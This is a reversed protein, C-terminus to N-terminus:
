DIDQLIASFSGPNVSDVSLIFGTGGGGTTAHTAVTYNQGATTLSYTLVEGSGGVTLVTITGLTGDAVTLVDNISYGTGAVSISSTVIAGSTIAMVAQIYRFYDSTPFLVFASATSTTLSVSGVRTDNETNSDIINSTLRNYTVYNLGDNSVKFSFVVTGTVLTGVVEVGYKKRMSTDFGSSTTAVSINELLKQNNTFESM